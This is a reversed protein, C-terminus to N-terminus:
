TNVSGDSSMNHLDNHRNIKGLEFDGRFLIREEIHGGEVDISATLLEDLPDFPRDLVDSTLLCPRTSLIKFAAVVVENAVHWREVVLANIHLGM